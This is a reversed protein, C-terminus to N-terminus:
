LVRDITAREQRADDSGPREPTEDHTREPEITLPVMASRVDICSEATIGHEHIDELVTVFGGIEVRGADASQLLARLPWCVSEGRSLVVPRECRCMADDKEQLTFTSTWKEGDHIWHGQFRGLCVEIRQERTPSLCFSTDLGSGVAAAPQDVTVELLFRHEDDERIQGKPEALACPTAGVALIVAGLITMSFPKM